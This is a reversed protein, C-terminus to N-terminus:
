FIERKYEKHMGLLIIITGLEFMFLPMAVWNAKFREPIGVLESLGLLPVLWLIAPAVLLMSHAILISPLYKKGTSIMSCLSYFVLAVGVQHTTLAVVSWIPWKGFMRIQDYLSALIVLVLFGLVWLAFRPLIPRLGEEMPILYEM